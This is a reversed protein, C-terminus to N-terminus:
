PPHEHGARVDNPRHGAFVHVHIDILGPTVVLNQAAIVRRGDASITGPPSLAVIKGNEILLDRPASLAQAPDVVLGGQILLSM